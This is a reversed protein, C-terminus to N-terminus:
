CSLHPPSFRPPFHPFLAELVPAPTSAPRSTRRARTTCRRHATPQNPENQNTQNTKPNSKRNEVVARDLSFAGSVKYQYDNKTKLQCAGKPNLTWARCAAVAACRECCAETSAAPAPPGLNYKSPITLNPFPRKACRPAAPAGADPAGAGTGAACLSAIRSAALAVFGPPKGPGMFNLTKDVAKACPAGAVVIDTCATPCATLKAAFTKEKDGFPGASGALGEVCKALASAAERPGGLSSCAGALAAAAEPRAVAGAWLTGVYKALRESTWPAARDWKVGCAAEFIEAVPAGAEAQLFIVDAQVQQV